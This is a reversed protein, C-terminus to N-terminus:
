LLPQLQFRCEPLPHAVDGLLPRYFRASKHRAMIAPLLRNLRQASPPKFLSLQRATWPALEATRVTLASVPHSLLLQEQLAHLHQALHAADATPQRLTRREQQLGEETEIQLLLVGAARHMEQLRGALEGAARDLVAQLVLRDGLPPDFRHTLQPGPPAPRPHPAAEADGQALRYLPLIEAGFQEQLASQSLGAFQGLTRIGLLRLRRATERDLPLFSISQGALFAKEGEPPVPRLHNPRSLTAAVQATFRDAALGLSPQLSTQRRVTRGIERALPTAERPPLSELDVYYRAPLSRAAAGTFSQPKDPPQWLNDPDVLHTFDALTDAVEGAAVQYRSLAAPMFHSHPSLTHALRLSMGPRVGCQAVERSYGFLPRPEWPQGGVVLPRNALARDDRREVATAFYSISLCAIV